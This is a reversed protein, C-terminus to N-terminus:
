MKYKGLLFQDGKRIDEKLFTIFSFDICLYTIYADM